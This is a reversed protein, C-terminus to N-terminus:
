ALQCPAILDMLARLAHANCRPAPPRRKPVFAYVMVLATRPANRVNALKGETGVEAIASEEFAFAEIIATVRVCPKSTVFTEKGAKRVSVSARSVIDM